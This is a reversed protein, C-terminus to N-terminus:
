FFKPFISFIQFFINQDLINPIASFPSFNIKLSNKIKKEGPMKETLLVWRSAVLVRNSAGLTESSAGVARRSAGM